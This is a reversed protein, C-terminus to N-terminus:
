TVKGKYDNIQMEDFQRVSMPPSEVAARNIGFHGETDGVFNM